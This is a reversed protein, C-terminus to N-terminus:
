SNASKNMKLHIYLKKTVEPSLSEFARENLSKFLEEPSELVLAPYDKFIDQLMRKFDDPSVNPSDEEADIFDEERENVLSM